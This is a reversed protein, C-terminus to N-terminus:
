KQKLGDDFAMTRQYLVEDFGRFDCDIADVLPPERRAVVSFLALHHVHNFNQRNLLFINCM